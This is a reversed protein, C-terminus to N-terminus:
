LERMRPRAVAVVVAMLSVLAGGFALAFPAGAVQAISGAIAGGLPMLNWNLGWISMVRGRFENSLTLQLNTAAVTMYVQNAMGMCFLLVLSLGFTTSYAFAIILV